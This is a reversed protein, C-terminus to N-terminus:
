WKAIYPKFIKSDGVICAALERAQERFIRLFKIDDNRYKEYRHLREFVTQILLKRTGEDLLGNPEITLTKGKQILSIVIRDVAQSRFLEMLDFGLTQKGPQYTHLVGISPNLKVSLLAQWVRPYILAYGYNLLCNFLDNAGQHERAEFIVNDDSILQRIYAWYLTAGSAEYSLLIKRYNEEQPDIAKIKKVLEENRSIFSDYKGALEPDNEKHYKHFYKILNQQNKLKGYIIQSAIYIKRELTLETQKRWIAEEVFVPSLISAFLKGRNDFFDVPIKNKMCYNIADSSISVGNTTVTIHSLAHSPSMKTNRGNIKISIGRNNKGIFSGFSSVVLEAGESERKQYELKKSNILRKNANADNQADIDSVAERKKRSYLDLWEKIMQKKRLENESSFFSLNYLANQLVKKSPIEKYQRSIIDEIREKLVKDLATILEPPIVRAYYTRIGYLTELSKEMFANNTWKLTKIREELLKKKEESITAVFNRISIGLFSIESSCPQIQPTNLKLKLRNQLFDSAKQALDNIQSEDSSFILFDDAYRVYSQTKSIVFQDFPHLYFNALLPSLVAGQPVGEKVETWKLKKSVVGMKTCLEILRVLEEDRLFRNLRNFLIEHDITDFYNDIDLRAVWAKKNKRFEDLTQRIAKTAGKGHRYGYSNPLFLKEFRYEILSKIAQQVIKDKVSLLGLKRKENDKKPIEIRLYPEPIWQKTKLEDVLNNIHKGLNEEFSFVSVGDIGGATKKFKVMKWARLLTEPTCLTNFLASM